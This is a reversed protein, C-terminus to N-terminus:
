VFSICKQKLPGNMQYKCTDAGILSLMTTHWDSIHFLRCDFYLLIQSASSSEVFLGFKTIILDLIVFVYCVIIDLYM